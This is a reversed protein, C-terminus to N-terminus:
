DVNLFDPMSLDPEVWQRRAVVSFLRDRSYFTLPYDRSGYNSCVFEICSSEVSSFDNLAIFSRAVNLWFRTLTEHYGETDSNPTGVSENHKIILNRVKNLAREYPHHWVYWIGVILHAEHTWESSPLEQNEFRSILSGIESSEM